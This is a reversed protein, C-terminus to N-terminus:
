RGARTVRLARDFWAADFTSHTPLWGTQAAFHDSSVRLSRALPEVRGGALRRLVPGLFAGSEAGAAKAIGEVLESRLVPAAGVNFVGSPAHLAAVVAPGLDDAHVLHAWEQPRGLGVPRGSAAARLWFRTRPDDGIISGFRLLVGARFGGAYDQVHSEGVAVPETAPTIEIPSQETIWADGADAYIFSASEQIIRHVGATRAAATVNAVARTHLDDNRRWANPWGAAYGVPIDTALNIAVDAGDYMRVLTDVEFLDAAQPRAGLATIVEVNAASRALVDVSHGADVLSRVAARGIVGTGGTVVVRVRDM